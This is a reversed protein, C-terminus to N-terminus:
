SLRKLLMYFYCQASRILYKAKYLPNSERNIQAWYFVLFGNPNKRLNSSFNKSYGDELYDCLYLITESFFWVAGEDAIQNWIYLEPVFKEGSFVPFPYKLFCATKFLYALDGKFLHGAETPALVLPLNDSKIKEGVLRMDFYAKRYCLGVVSSNEPPLAGTIVEIAVPVLADDSDVVLVWSGRAYTVGKNLAIHKGSNVQSIIRVDFGALHSYENLLELSGDCSGDDVVVWEFNMSTQARLSNFLRPLTNERNYTATLITIM